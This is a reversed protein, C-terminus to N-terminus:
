FLGCPSVLAAAAEPGAPGRTHGVIRKGRRLDWRSATRRVAVAVVPGASLAWRRANIQRGRTMLSELASRVEIRRGRLRVSGGDYRQPCSVRYLTGRLWCCSPEIFGVRKRGLYMYTRGDAASLRDRGTELAGATQATTSGAVVAAAIFIVIRKNM